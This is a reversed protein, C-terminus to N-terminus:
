EENEAILTAEGKENLDMLRPLVHETVVWHMWSSNACQTIPNVCDPWQEAGIILTGGKKQTDGSGGSDSSKSGSATPSSSKKDSGCAAALLGFCFVLALLKIGRRQRRM